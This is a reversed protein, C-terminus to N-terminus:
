LVADRMAALQLDAATNLPQESSTLSLINSYPRCRPRANWIMSSMRSKVCVASCNPLGCTTIHSRGGASTQVIETQKARQETQMLIADTQTRCNHKAYVKQQCCQCDAAHSMTLPHAAPDPGPWHYSSLEQMTQEAFRNHALEALGSLTQTQQPLLDAAPLQSSVGLRHLLLQLVVLVLLPQCPLDATPTDATPTCQYMSNMNSM